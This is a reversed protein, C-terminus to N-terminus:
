CLALSCSVGLQLLVNCCMRCWLLCSNQSACGDGCVATQATVVSSRRGLLLLCLSLSFPQKNLFIFLVILALDELGFRTFGLKYNM